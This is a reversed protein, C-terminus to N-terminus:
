EPAVDQDSMAALLQVIARRIQTDSLSAFAKALAIGERTSILRSIDTKVYSLSAPNVIALGDLFYELRVGLTHALIYLQSASIRNTGIEYKQIQQFTVGLSEALQKQTLDLFLRRLRIRSGIHADIKTALQKTGASRKSAGSRAKTGM